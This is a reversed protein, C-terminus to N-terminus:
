QLHRLISFILNTVGTYFQYFILIQGNLEVHCYFFFYTYAMYFIMNFHSPLFWRFSQIPTASVLSKREMFSQWTSNTGWIVPQNKWLEPKMSRICSIIREGRQSYNPLHQSPQMTTIPSCNSANSFHVSSLIGFSTHSCTFHSSASTASFIIRIFVCYLHTFCPELSANWCIPFELPRWLLIGKALYM